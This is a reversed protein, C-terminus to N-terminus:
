DLVTSTGKKGIINLSIYRDFTKKDISADVIGPLFHPENPYESIGSFGQQEMLLSLWNFNFGTKHFDYPTTQGGYILGIWPSHGKTQFHAWHDRYISVIKDLDPVSIRIVGGPKLVEFWRKLVVPIEDHSFHELVHCAYIEEVFGDPVDAITAFLIDLIKHIITDPIPSSTPPGRQVHL